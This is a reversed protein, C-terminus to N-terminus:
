QYKRKRLSISIQKKDEFPETLPTNTLNIPRNNNEKAYLHTSFYFSQMIIFHLNDFEVFVLIFM